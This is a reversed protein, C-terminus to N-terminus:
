GGTFVAILMKIVVVALGLQVWNNRLGLMNTANPNPLPKAGRAGPVAPVSAAIGM